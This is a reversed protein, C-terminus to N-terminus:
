LIHPKYDLKYPTQLYAGYANTQKRLSRFRLVQVACLYLLTAVGLFHWIPLQSIDRSGVIKLIKAKAMAIYSELAENSLHALTM